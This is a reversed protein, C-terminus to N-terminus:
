EWAEKLLCIEDSIINCLRQVPLSEHQFLRRNRENWINWAIYVSTTCIQFAEVKKRHHSFVKEWWGVISSAERAYRAVLQNTSSFSHWVEKAYPCRLILHIASEIVQDCNCCSDHHDWNRRLLRDATWLRNQLLTWMFIKVKGEAKIKWVNALAPSPIRTKFQIDYASKASYVNNTTLTWEILDENMNDLIDQKVAQVKTWLCLFEELEAAGDMRNLGRM